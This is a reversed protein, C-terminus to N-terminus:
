QLCFVAYSIRRLSQLESTHEESRGRVLLTGIDFGLLNPSLRAELPRFLISIRIRGSGLGEELSYFRTLQSANVLLGSLQLVFLNTGRNCQGLVRVKLMVVGLIADNERMRSDKVAVTVHAKRWDKVFRETGANFMPYSTIPKVRTKYVLEDNLSRYLLRHSTM